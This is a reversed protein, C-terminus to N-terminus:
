SEYRKLRNRLRHLEEILELALAAGARNVGLDRQLKVACKVKRVCTSEFRWGESPKSLPEIVGIDIFQQVEEASLQCLQCLEALTLGIHEDMLEGSIIRTEKNTM